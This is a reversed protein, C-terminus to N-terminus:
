HGSGAMQALNFAKLQRVAAFAAPGVYRAYISELEGDAYMQNLAADIKRAMLAARDGFAAKSIMLYAGASSNLPPELAIIDAPPDMRSALYYTVTNNNIFLDIRGRILKNINTRTDEAEDIRVGLRRVAADLSESMSFGLNIGVRHAALSELGTFQIAAGQRAFASVVTIHLPFKHFVAFSRREPTSFASLGSGTSGNRVTALTRKWPLILLRSEIGARRVAELAIDVDIGSYQDGTRIQYPEFGNEAVAISLEEAAVVLAQVWFLFSLFLIRM